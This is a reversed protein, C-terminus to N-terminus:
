LRNKIQGLIPFLNIKWNKKGEYKVHLPQINQFKKNIVEIQQEFKDRIKEQAKTNEFLSNM